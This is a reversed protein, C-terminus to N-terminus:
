LLLLKEYSDSRSARLSVTAFFGARAFFVVHCRGGTGRRYGDGQM